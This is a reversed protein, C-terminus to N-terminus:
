RSGAFAIRAGVGDRPSEGGFLKAEVVKEVLGEDPRVSRELATARALGDVRFTELPEERIRECDHVIELFACRFRIRLLAVPHELQEQDESVKVFVDRMVGNADFPEGSGRGERASKVEKSRAPSSAFANVGFGVSLKGKREKRNL